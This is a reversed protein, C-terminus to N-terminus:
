SMTRGAQRCIIYKSANQMSVCMGLEKFTVNTTLRFPNALEAPTGSTLNRKFPRYRCKFIHLAPFSWLAGSITQLVLEM